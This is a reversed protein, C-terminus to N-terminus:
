NLQASTTLLEDWMHIERAKRRFAERAVESWNVSKHTQMLRRTEADISLTMNPM